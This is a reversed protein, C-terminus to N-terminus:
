NHGDLEFVAHDNACVTTSSGAAVDGVSYCVLEGVDVVADVATARTRSCVGLGDGVDYMVVELDVPGSQRKAGGGQKVQTM